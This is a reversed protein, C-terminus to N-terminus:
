QEKFKQECHFCIKRNSPQKTSCVPCIIFDKDIHTPSIAIDNTHPLQDAQIATIETDSEARATSEEIIPSPNTAPINLVKKNLDILQRQNKIIASLADLLLCIVEVTFAVISCSIWYYISDIYPSIINIIGGIILIIFIIIRSTRAFSTLQEDIKMYHLGGYFLAGWFLRM